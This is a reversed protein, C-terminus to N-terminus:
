IEQPVSYRWNTKGIRRRGFLVTMQSEQLSAERINELLEQEEERDYFKM